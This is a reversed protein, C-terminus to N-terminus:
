VFLENIRQNPSGNIHVGFSEVGAGYVDNLLTYYLDRLPRDSEFQIHQNQKLGAGGGGVLVVPLDNSAHDGGRMCSAYFVVTNDLVTGEGEPIADLKLCLEAVKQSLWWNISAFGDDTSSAHQSGHFEGPQGSGAVSGTADFERRTVHNYVFESRADDLMYSIVRTLDCSFAMTIIDNIADTHDNKDYGDMGNSLGYIAPAGAVAPAQCHAAMTGGVAAARSEVERVSQMFQDLRRQDERGLKRRTYAANELVADLVSKDLARRMEAAAAAEEDEGSVGIKAVLEDFLTQPNVEKYLPETPSKWSISRSLSCDRADCFSEITSTGVQLSDYFTSSGFKQALVQDVSIGNAVPLDLEDRVLDSDVCTLFAGTCRSHSPGLEVGMQVPTYNELNTLAIMKQKLPAFHELIPSLAWQDGTGTGTPRWYEATGNPFFIPLFRLPGTPAAGQGRAIRPALSELWPLTLCVGAGRLFNRRSASGVELFRRSRQIM